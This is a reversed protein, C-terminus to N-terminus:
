FRKFKLQRKTYLIAPQYYKKTPRNLTIIGKANMPQCGGRTRGGMPHDVPNMSSPRTKPRKGLRRVRGAKEYPKLFHNEGGVTGLSATVSSSFYRLEGSKLKLLSHGNEKRVLITSCGASRTLQGIGNPCLSINHILSGSPINSLISSDGFRKPKSIHNGIIAGESVKAPLLINSFLGKPFCLLGTPATRHPDYGKRLIMGSEGPFIIRKFDIFRYLQKCYISQRPAVIQGYSRGASSKIHSNLPKFQNFNNNILKFHLKLKAFQIDGL